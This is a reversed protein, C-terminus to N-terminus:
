ACAPFSTGYSTWSCCRGTATKCVPPRSWWPSSWGWPISWSIASAATSMNTRMTGTSGGKETTKVSQSDLSGASPQRHRGAAVRVDGRLMDHIHQWTSDRRWAWFYYYVIRWPPLDHPLMRWACGSRLVYFIGNLVERKPYEEPRGGPKAEPVYPRILEWEHDTVDSPYAPRTPM